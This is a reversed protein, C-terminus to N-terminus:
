EWVIEGQDGWLLQPGGRKTGTVAADGDTVFTNVHHIADLVRGFDFADVTKIDGGTAEEPLVGVGDGVVVKFVSAAGAGADGNVVTFGVGETGEAVGMAEVGGGAFDDPADVGSFGEVGLGWAPSEGGRGEDPFVGNDEVDGGLGAAGKEGEIRRGAGFAPPGAIIGGSIRGREDDLEFAMRFGLEDLPAGLMDEAEVGVGAFFVPTEGVVDLVADGDGLWKELVSKKEDASVPVAGAGEPEAGIGGGGGDEFPALLFGMATEHTLREVFVANDVEEVAAFAEESEFEGGALDEPFVVVVERGLVAVGM